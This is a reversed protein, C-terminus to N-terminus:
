KEDDSYKKIKVSSIITKAAETYKDNYPKVALYIIHTTKDRSVIM